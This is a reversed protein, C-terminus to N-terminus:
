HQSSRLVSEITHVTGRIRQLATHAHMARATRIDHVRALTQTPPYAHDLHEGVVEDSRPM